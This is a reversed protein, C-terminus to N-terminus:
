REELELTWGDTALAVAGGFQESVESRIDVALVPPYFHTLALV